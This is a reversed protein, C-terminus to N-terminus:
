VPGLDGTARLTERALDHAAQKAVEAAYVAVSKALNSAAVAAALAAYNGTQQTYGVVTLAADITTQAVMAAVNLAVTKSSNASAISANYTDRASM